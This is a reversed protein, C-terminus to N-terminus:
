ASEALIPTVTRAIGSQEIYEFVKESTMPKGFLYGQVQDLHVENKLLELQEIEEVGEVIIMLGLNAAMKTVGALLILSREDNRITEVFSRDIKVKDLPLQHLYSLSSFGTGFDDLSIRVGGQAISRLVRSTENLDEIVSSETVEIELRNPSLGSKLLAKTVVDCVDSQKFQLSSVNVAVRIDGPWKMCEKTAEELVFKGIRSIMGIEEAIPIFISPPINGKVPHQWRVLAECGSISNSKLDILPQYHVSLEENELARRLDVEMQRREKIMEGLKENYFCHTGRGKTKAQYLSLDAMKLLQNFDSEDSPCLAIGVSTAVIILNGDILIPKSVEEILTNAFNECEVKDTVSPLVIIFEDGGFRCIMAGEPLCSKMRLSVVCLLKDGVSHGLSDNIDKFKDLDLFFTSYTNFAPDNEFKEEIQETFYRRNALHTLPDFNALQRIENESNVRESVDELVLVGAGDTMPNFSAEITLGDLRTYTFQKQKANQMCESLRDTLSKHNLGDIKGDMELNKIDRLSKGSIQAGKVVGILEGFRQNVVLFTGSRDLMALGHSANKMAIEFRNAITKNEISTFAADFLMQRLRYAILQLAMLFPLLLGALLKHYYSGFIVLGIMLPVSVAVVQASVVRASGFNRGAIGLIYALTTCFLILHITEDQTVAMSLLCVSGMLAVYITAWVGYTTEASRLKSRSFKGTEQKLFLSLSYIRVCGIFILGFLAWLFVDNGSKIWVAGVALWTSLKGIFLAKGDGHLSNVVSKYVERPLQNARLKERKSSALKKEAM